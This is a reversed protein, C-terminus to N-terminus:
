SCRLFFFPCFFFGRVENCQLCKLCSDHYDKNLAHIYNYGVNEGCASCKPVCGKCVVSSGNNHVFVEESPEIAGGCRGCVICSAHCLQPGLCVVTDNEELRGGCTLCKAPECEDRDCHVIIAIGLDEREEDGSKKGEENGSKKGAMDGTATCVLSGKQSANYTRLMLREASLTSRMIKTFGSDTCCDQWYGLSIVPSSQAVARAMKSTNSGGSYRIKWQCLQACPLRFCLIASVGGGM